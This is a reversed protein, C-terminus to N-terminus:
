RRDSPDFPREEEIPAAPATPALDAADPAGTLRQRLRLGLGTGVLGLGALAAWRPFDAWGQGAFPLVGPTPRQPAQALM